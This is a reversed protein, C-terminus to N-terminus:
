LASGTQSAVPDQSHTVRNRGNQKSYYLAADADHILDTWSSMAETATSVGFSATVNADSWSDSAIASRLREALALASAMGTNPLIVVLEEGGYRAVVDCERTHETLLSAVRQLVRDGAPHGFSDNLLKFHDIDMMVLSLEGGTCARREWEEAIREHFARHNKLGTLGDITALEFLRSNAEGLDRQAELLRRNQQELEVQTAIMIGNQTELEEKVTQLENYANQLESTRGRVLIELEHTHAILRVARRHFFYAILAIVLLASVARFWLTDEVHPQLDFEVAAPHDGWIGDVNCATVLFRYHGPPLRNYTASRRSGADVWTKDFGELMTKFQIKEPASFSLASYRVRLEGKGPRVQSIRGPPLLMGDISAVAIVLPPAATDIAVHAPDLRTLGASGSFWLTGDVTRVARMSDHPFSRIGDSAQFTRSPIQPIGGQDYLDLDSISLRYIGNDYGVWLGGAGDALVQFPHGAPLDAGVGYLRTKGHSIRGLHSETVFWIDDPDSVDFGIVAREKQATGYLRTIRDNALCFLGNVTAFWIRGARDTRASFAYGVDYKYKKVTGNLAVTCWETSHLLYFKGGVMGVVRGFAVGPVLFSKPKGPARLGPGDLEQFTWRDTGDVAWSWVSGDDGECLGGLSTRPWEPQHESTGTLGAHARFVGRNTACWIGGDAAPGVEMITAVSSGDKLTYPQLRTGTLRSIKTGAAIWVNDERDVFINRVNPDPLGDARTLGEFTPVAGGQNRDGAISPAALGSGGSFRSVGNNTGVWLQSTHDEFVTHISNSVLGDRTTFVTVKGGQARFLGDRESGIWIAGDVTRTICTLRGTPLLKQLPEPKVAGDPDIHALGINQGAVIAGGDPLPLIGMAVDRFGACQKASGGTLRYLKCDGNGGAWVVGNEGFAIANTINWHPNNDGLRHFVQGQITGFGGRETGAWLTGSSDVNLATIRGSTLGRVNGEDFRDFAVGDFRYLGVPTGLWLYGDPTQAVCNIDRIPLGDKSGWTDLRCQGLPRDPPVARAVGLATGLSIAAALIATM